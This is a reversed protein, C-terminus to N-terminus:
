GINIFVMMEACWYKQWGVRRLALVKSLCQKQCDVSKHWGVSRGDLVELLCCKQCGVDRGDLMEALCFNQCGVNYCKQWGVSQRGMNRGALMKVLCLKHCEDNIGALKEALWYKSWGVNRGALV